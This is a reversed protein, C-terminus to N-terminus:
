KSAVKQMVPLENYQRETVEEFRWYHVHKKETGGKKVLVPEISLEQKKTIPMKTIPHVGYQQIFYSASHFPVSICGKEDVKYQLAKKYLRDYQGIQKARSEDKPSAGKWAKSPVFHTVISGPNLEAGWQDCRCKLKFKLLQEGDSARQLESEGIIMLPRCGWSDGEIILNSLFPAEDRAVCDLYFKEFKEVQLKTNGKFVKLLELDFIQRDQIEQSM